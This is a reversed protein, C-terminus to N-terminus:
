LRRKEIGSDEDMINRPKSPFLIELNEAGQLVLSPNVVQVFNELTLGAEQLVEDPNDLLRQYLVSDTWANAVLKFVKKELNVLAEAGSNRKM